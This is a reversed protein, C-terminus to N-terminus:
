AKTERRAVGTEQAATAVSTAVAKVVARNFVSPIVYDEHLEGTPIV